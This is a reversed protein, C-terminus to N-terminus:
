SAHRLVGKKQDEAAKRQVLVPMTRVLRHNRDNDVVVATRFSDVIRLHPRVGVSGQANRGSAGLCIIFQIEAAAIRERHSAGCGIDACHRIAFCLIIIRDATIVRLRTRQM